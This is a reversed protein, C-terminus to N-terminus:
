GSIRDFRAHFFAWTQSSQVVVDHLIQFFYLLLESKKGARRVSEDGIDAGIKKL